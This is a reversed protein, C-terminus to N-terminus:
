LFITWNNNKGYKKDIFFLVQAPPEPEAKISLAYPGYGISAGNCVFNKAFIVQHFHGFIDYDATIGKNWQAIAKNVPIYIGGVGGGYRLSDGHHFRLVKEFVPLYLHYGEGILFKIKKNDQYHNALFHFLMWEYSNEMSASVKMKMTTRGHNGTCCPITIRKFGGHELIYDIGAIAIKYFYAIAQTPSMENTEMLEDHIYGTIHDGLLGLILEDITTGTRQINVIRVLKVFFLEIRKKAIKSSHENIHNVKESKVVEEVHNDSLIAVAVAESKATSLKPNISFGKFDLAELNKIVDVREELKSIEEVARKLDVTTQKKEQKHKDLKKHLGLRGFEDKLGDVDIKNGL